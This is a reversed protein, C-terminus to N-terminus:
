PSATIVLSSRVIGWGARASRRKTSWGRVSSAGSRRWGSRPRVMVSSSAASGGVSRTVGTQGALLVGQDSQEDQRQQQVEGEADDRCQFPVSCIGLRGAPLAARGAGGVAIRDAPDVKGLVVGHDAQM